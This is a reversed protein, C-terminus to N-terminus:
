LSLSVQTDSPQEPIGEPQQDNAKQSFSSVSCLSAANVFCKVTPIILILRAKEGKM